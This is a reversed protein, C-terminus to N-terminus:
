DVGRVAAECELLDVGFRHGYHETFEQRWRLMDRVDNGEITRMGVATRFEAMSYWLHAALPKENYMVWTTKGIKPFRWASKLYKINGLAPASMQWYDEMGLTGYWSGGKEWWRGVQRPDFMAFSFHLYLHGGNHNNRNVGDNESPGAAAFGRDRMEQALDRVLLHDEIVVDQHLTVIYGRDMIEPMAMAQEWGRILKYYVKEDQRWDFLEPDVEDGICLIEGLGDISAKQIRLLNEIQPVGKVTPVIFVLPIDGSM